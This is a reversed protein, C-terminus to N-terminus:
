LKYELRFTLFYGFLSRTLLAENKYLSNISRSYRGTIAIHETLRYGAGLAFGIKTKSFDDELDQFFSNEVVTNFLRGISLGAEAFVKYYREDIEWDNIRLTIPIDVYSLAIYEIGPAQGFSLASKSGTQNYLMEIGLTRGPRLEYETLIGASIGLKSFGALDDGDIQAFNSGLLVSASFRQGLISSCNLVILLLILLVKSFSSYM